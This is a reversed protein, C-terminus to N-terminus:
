KVHRRDKKRRKATQSHRVNRIRRTHCANVEARVSPKELSISRRRRQRVCRTLAAVAVGADAASLQRELRRLRGVDNVDDVDDNRAATTSKQSRESVFVGCCDGCCGYSDKVATAASVAACVAACSAAASYGREAYCITTDLVFNFM